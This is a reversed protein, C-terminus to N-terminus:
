AYTEMFQPDNKHTDESHCGKNSPTKILAGVNQLSGYVLTEGGRERVGYMTVHLGALRKLGVVDEPADYAM